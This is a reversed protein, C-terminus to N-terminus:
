ARRRNMTALVIAYLGAIIMAAPESWYWWVALAITAVGAAELATTIVGRAGRGVAAALTLAVAWVGRLASAAAARARQEAAKGLATNVRERLAQQMTTM